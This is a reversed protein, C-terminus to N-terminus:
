LILSIANHLNEASLTRHIGGDEGDRTWSVDSDFSFSIKKTHFFTVNRNDYKQSLIGTVINNLESINKPYKVLFVEFMGDSLSVDNSDLKVIGAVSTSNTVGGFVYDGEIIGEDCEVRTHVPTIKPLRSVGEIIYALHGLANKTEQPTQYSVDTFAGFATVYTFYNGDHLRGIDIPVAKGGVINEAAKRPNKAIGLSSAVDNTSGMPIYGLAAHSGARVLGATVESLTGDGGVCVVTDYELSYKEAFVAADGKSGTMYVTVAAGDNAFVSVIDFLGAKAQGKGAVPNVILM